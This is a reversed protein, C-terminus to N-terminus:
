LSRILRKDYISTISVADLFCFHYPTAAIVRAAEPHPIRCGTGWLLEGSNLMAKFNTPQALSLANYDKTNLM